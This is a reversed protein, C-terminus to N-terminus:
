SFNLMKVYNISYFEPRRYGKKMANCKVSIANCKILVANGPRSKGFIISSISWIVGAILGGNCEKEAKRISDVPGKRM